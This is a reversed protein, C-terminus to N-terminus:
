PRAELVINFPTEAARRVSRLGGQELVARLAAEGAQNGLARTRGGSDAIAHPVCILTSGAYFLRGVPNLNDETRDGAQPEVIM